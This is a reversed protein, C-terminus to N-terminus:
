IIGFLRGIAISPDIIMRKTNLGKTFLKLKKKRFITHGTKGPLPMIKHLLKRGRVSIKGSKEWGLKIL